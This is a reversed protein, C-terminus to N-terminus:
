IRGALRDEIINAIVNGDVTISTGQFGEPYAIDPIDPATYVMDHQVAFHRIGLTQATWQDKADAMGYLYNSGFEFSVIQPSDVM